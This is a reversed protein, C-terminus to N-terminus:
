YESPPVLGDDRHVLQGLVFESATWKVARVGGDAFVFQCLGTHPGGFLRRSDKRGIALPLGPGASRTSCVINHGDYINCDWPYEGFHNDPVNKEGVLVTHSTGDRLDLIRQGTYSTFAGNPPVAVVQLGVPLLRTDDYGTTGVSAGYDGVAGPVSNAEVCGQPQTFARGSVANSSRRSPCFYIPIPTTLVDQRPVTYIPTNPAWMRYLNDQEIYPLILWAWSQTEGNLRSPPLRGLGSEHNLCALGIQRLHNACKARAAAERVNQVAPLLMGILMAIIAIVVLLEILTFGAARARPARRSM